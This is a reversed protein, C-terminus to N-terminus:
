GSQRLMPAMRNQGNLATAGDTSKYNRIHGKFGSLITFWKRKVTGISLVM